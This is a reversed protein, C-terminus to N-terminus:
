FDMMLLFLPETENNDNKTESNTVKLVFETLCM